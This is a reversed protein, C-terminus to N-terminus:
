KMDLLLEIQDTLYDLSSYTLTYAPVQQALRSIEALGHRPLNRANVLCGMLHLAAHAQSLRALRLESAPQYHLFLILQVQPTGYINHPNLQTVPILLGRESWYQGYNPIAAPNTELCGHQQLITVAPTRVHLPRFFSLLSSAGSEICVMEDSLYDYGRHALWAAFTSKGSGSGGPLLVGRDHFALAAAHFLPGIRCGNALAHVTWDLLVGAATGASPGQYLLEEGRQVRLRRTPETSLRFRAQGESPRALIEAGYLFKLIRLAATGRWDIAVQTGAFSVLWSGAASM